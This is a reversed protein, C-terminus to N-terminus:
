RFDMEAFYRVEPIHAFLVGWQTNVAAYHTDFENLVQVAANQQSTTGANELNPNIVGEIFRRKPEVRHYANTLHMFAIELVEIEQLITTRLERIQYGAETGSRLHRNRALNRLVRVVERQNNIFDQIYQQDVPYQAHRNLSQRLQQYYLGDVEQVAQLLNDM